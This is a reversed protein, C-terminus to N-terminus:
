LPRYLSILQLLCTHYDISVSKRYAWKGSMVNSYRRIGSRDYEEYAAYDFQGDFDASSLMNHAVTRTNRCFVRYTEHKWSPANAAVPGHYRVSFAEWPANGQRINDIAAYLDNKAQLLLTEM